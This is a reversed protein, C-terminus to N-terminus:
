LTKQAEDDVQKWNIIQLDIWIWVPKGDIKKQKDHYGLKKLERSFYDSSEIPLNKEMCFSGYAAYVKEKTVDEPKTNGDPSQLAMENFLGIPNSSLKYKEYNGEITSSSSIGTQLVRPLRKLLLSLLASMEEPTSLEDILYPNAKDGELYQNPYNIIEYRSHFADTDDETAPIVNASFIIKATNKFYFVPKFKFEGAVRDGGTIKKLTGTNKLDNSSVDADINALKGFLSGIAFKDELLRQLSESSVNDTGLFKTILTLTTGKGNRGGGNLLLWKHYPLDRYLCYSMFDLLTEINEESGMVQRFFQMIKHPPPVHPTKHLFIHPVQVTAMFQASHARIEGTRINVMVNACCIWNIDPDFEKRDTYTSWMIRNKIETIDYTTRREPNYKLLEQEILWEGDRRFIGAKGDYYYIEKTDKLTKFHYKQILQKALDKIAELAAKAQAQTQGQLDVSPSPAAVPDYIQIWKQSLNVILYHKVHTAPDLKMKTDMQEVTAWASQLIPITIPQMMKGEDQWTINIEPPQRTVTIDLIGKQILKSTLKLRRLSKGNFFDKTKNSNDKM